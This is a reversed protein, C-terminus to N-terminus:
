FWFRLFGQLKCFGGWAYLSFLFCESERLSTATKKWSPSTPQFSGGRHFVPALCWLHAHITPHHTHGATHTHKKLQHNSYTHKPTKELPNIPTEINREPYKQLTNSVFRDRFPNRPDIKSSKAQSPSPSPHTSKTTVVHASSFLLHDWYCYDLLWLLLLQLPLFSFSSLLLFSPKSALIWNIGCPLKM